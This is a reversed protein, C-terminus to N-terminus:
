YYLQLLTCCTCLVIRLQYHYCYQCTQNYNKCNNEPQHQDAFSTFLLLMFLFSRPLFIPFLIRRYISDTLFLFIKRLISFISSFIHHLTSTTRLISFSFIFRNKQFSVLFLRIIEFSPKYCSIITLIRNKTQMRM